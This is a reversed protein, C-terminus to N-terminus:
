QSDAEENGLIAAAIDSSRFYVRRGLKVRARRLMSYMGECNERNVGNALAVPSRKLLEALQKYTMLAGFQAFIHDTTESKM